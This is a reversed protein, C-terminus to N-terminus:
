ENQFLQPTQAQAELMMVEVQLDIAKRQISKELKYFNVGKAGFEAELIDFIHGLNAALVKTKRSTLDSTLLFMKETESMGSFPNYSERIEYKLLEQPEDSHIINAIDRMVFRRVIAGAESRNASELDALLETLGKLKFDSSFVIKSVLGEGLDTFSAVAQVMNEWLKSYHLAFPRLTDYVNQMDINKATATETQQVDSKTFIDSQFVAAKAERICSQIYDRQFELIATDPNKFSVLDSLPIIDARDDPLRLVIEEQASSPVTKLGTGKCSGCKVTGNDTYGKYCGDADCPPAYRLRLPFATLAMSLDLESGTKIVKKLHPIAEHIPSVYTRGNTRFDRIYGVRFAQVRGADHSLPRIVEWIDNNAAKIAERGEYTSALYGREEIERMALVGIGYDMLVFQSHNPNKIKKVQVTYNPLYCTLTEEGIEGGRITLYQLTGNVFRFDVADASFVEHPYPSLRGNVKRSGDFDIVIWANPDVSLLELPRVKVYGDLSTEGSFRSMVDEIESVKTDRNKVDSDYTLVRSYNAFPIKNFTRLLSNVYTPVIHQTIQVRQHFWDEDERRAFQRLMADMGEGTVLTRCLDAYENVHQYDPHRLSKAAVQFLRTEIQENTM